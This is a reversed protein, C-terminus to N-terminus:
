ILLRWITKSMTALSGSSVGKSSIARCIWSRAPKLAARSCAVLASPTGASSAHLNTSVHAEWDDQRRLRLIVQRVNDCIDGFIIRVAGPSKPVKQNILGEGDPSQRFSSADYRFQIVGRHSFDDVLWVPNDVFDKMIRRDNIHKAKPVGGTSRGLESWRLGATRHEMGM